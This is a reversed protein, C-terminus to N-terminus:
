EATWKALIRCSACFMARCRGVAQRQPALVKQSAEPIDVRSRSSGAWQIKITHCFSLPQRTRVQHGNSKITDQTKAVLHVDNQLDTKM